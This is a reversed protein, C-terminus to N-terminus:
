QNEILNTTGQPSNGDSKKYLTLRWGSYKPRHKFVETFSKSKIFRSDALCENKYSRGPWDEQDLVIFEPNWTLNDLLYANYTSEKQGILTLYSVRWTLNQKTALFWMNPPLIVKTNPLIGNEQVFIKLRAESQKYDNAMVTYTKAVAFALNNIFLLFSFIIVLGILSRQPTCHIISGISTAFLMMLWVNLYTYYYLNLTSGRTIAFLFCAILIAFCFFAKKHISQHINESTKNNKFFMILPSLLVVFVTFLIAPQFRFNYALMELVTSLDGRTEVSRSGSVSSILQSVAEPGMWIIWLASAGIPILGFISFRIGNRLFTMTKSFDYHWLVFILAPSFYVTIPHFCASLGFLFGALSIKSTKSLSDNSEFLLTLISATLFLAAHFEMRGVSSQIVFTKDFFFIGISFLAALRSSGSLKFAAFACLALLVAAPLISYLRISWLELPMILLWTAMGVTFGPAHWGWTKSAGMLDGLQPIAFVGTQIWNVAPLTYLIEDEWPPRIIGVGWLQWFIWLFFTPGLTWSIFRPSSTQLLFRFCRSLLNM